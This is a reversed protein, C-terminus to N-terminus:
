FLHQILYIESCGVSLTRIRMEGRHACGWPWLSKQPIKSLTRLSELCVAVHHTVGMWVEVEKSVFVTCANVKSRTHFVVIFCTLFRVTM